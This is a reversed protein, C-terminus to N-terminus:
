CRSSNEHPKRRYIKGVNKNTQTYDSLKISDKGRFFTLIMLTIRITNNHGACQSGPIDSRSTRQIESGDFGICKEAAPSVENVNMGYQIISPCTKGRKGAQLFIFSWEPFDETIKRFLLSM